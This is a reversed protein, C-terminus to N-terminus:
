ADSLASTVCSRSTAASSDHAPRGNDTSVGRTCAVHGHACACPPPAHQKSLVTEIAGAHAAHATSTSPARQGLVHVLLLHLMAVLVM